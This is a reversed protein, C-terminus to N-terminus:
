KLGRRRLEKNFIMLQMEALDLTGHSDEGKLERKLASIMRDQIFTICKRIHLESMEEVKVVTRDRKIWQGNLQAASWQEIDSNIIHM